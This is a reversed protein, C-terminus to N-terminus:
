VAGTLFMMRAVGDTPAVAVAFVRRRPRLLVHPDVHLQQAESATWTRAAVGFLSIAGDWDWNAGSVYHGIQNNKAGATWATHNDTDSGVLRGDVYMSQSPASSFAFVLTHWEGDQWNAPLGNCIFSGGAYDVRKAGAGLQFFLDGGAANDSSFFISGSIDFSDLRYRMFLTFTQGSLNALATNAVYQNADKVFELAWGEDTAVWDSAPDMNTLTGHNGFGSHDFLRLGTPGLSPAWLGVLGRWLGPNESQAANRAFGAAYSPRPSTITSPLLTIM